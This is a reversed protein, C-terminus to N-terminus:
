TKTQEVIAGVKAVIDDFPEACLNFIPVEYHRAIRLAQATGGKMGEPDITWCVVFKSPTSLDWGLVQFCNRGHMKRAGQGCKDWAPHFRKAMYQADLNVYNYQSKHKNFLPWPLFIDALGAGKEFAADAGLAAGSRLNWGKVALSQAIYTMQVLVEPPTKRSGIGTYNM